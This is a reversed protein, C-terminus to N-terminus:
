IEAIYIRIFSMRIGYIENTNMIKHAPMVHPYRNHYM